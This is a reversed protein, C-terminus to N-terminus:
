DEGNPTTSSMKGTAVLRRSLDNIERINEATDREIEANWRRALQLEHQTRHLEQQTRHLEQETRQLAVRLQDDMQMLLGLFDGLLANFGSQQQLLPVVSWRVALQYWLQRLRALLPGVLPVESAFPEERIEQLDRLAGFQESRHPLLRYQESIKDAATSRAPLRGPEWPEQEERLGTEGIVCTSRLDALFVLLQRAESHPDADHSVGNPRTRFAVITQVDLMNVLYARRASMMEATRGLSAAWAREAPFFERRLRELPWHKLVLRVRGQHLAYKHDHSERQATPTEYHILQAAPSVVVRFGAERATYCWDVDEYYAHSFSEDLLDIHSLATRAVALAAGTVFDVDRVEDFRGDDPEHRGLHDTEARAGYVLGGAHQVTGDPYFSKSGVIGITPDQITSVLARIWDPEVITDQNLLALVDGTAARLGVNSGAAFGLNRENRILAVEPYQEGVLNASGDTSGNDVVVVELDPYDQALVADLCDGLYEIGNWSLVIVSAKM